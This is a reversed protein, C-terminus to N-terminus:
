RNLSAKWLSTFKRFHSPHPPAWWTFPFSIHSCKNRSLPFSHFFWHLPLMFFSGSFAVPCPLFFALYLINNQNILVQLVVRKLVIPFWWCTKLYPHIIFSSTSNTKFCHSVSIHVVSSIPLCSLYAPVPLSLSLLISENSLQLTM